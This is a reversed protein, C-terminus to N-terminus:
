SGGDEATVRGPVVRAVRLGNAVALLESVEHVVVASVVTIAGLLASPIMVALILLSFVINQRTIGRAARGLRIAYVAKGLDDAMLAVDAAEIAADTGAAGMAIGVTAAALAPADNIGDGIMAVPGQERAIREVYRVKDEPKLEAHVHDVGLEQAIAASTRANDGTLMAVQVGVRHLAAISERAGPRIRDQLALIGIPTHDRAVAVVTKGEAQCRDLFAEASDLAIGLERFLGPSGVFAVEGGVRARAGLGSLAEFETVPALALGERDAKRIIAQGIPHESLREVSAATALVERSDMRTLAVIDTVEPTGSTLTGTKDFAVVQIRGLNELHIGGKILVGHRGGTGIGAAAAVPTSMVLACPAAAVLLVVTKIAWPLFPQDFVPPVLLLGLSAGLVAPSYRRGFREFLAQLQGKREQAEEVLHIIKSLTNDEFSATAEVVLAGQRNITGAFVQAGPTKEVPISEGTVAAEDVASAGERVVGDTPLAEGPRVVCRDGVCIAAAPITEERSNRLVRAEQPALALLARIAARTRSYAYEELAEATGYLSVLIAAEDWLGLAAAGAAAATMLVEIGVERQARLKAFGERLFHRGGLAMALPYGIPEIQKFGAFHALVATVALLVGGALSQRMPPFRWWPGAFEPEHNSSDPHHGM